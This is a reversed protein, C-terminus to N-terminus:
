NEDSLQKLGGLISKLAEKNLIYYCRLKGKEIYDIIGANKLISLHQSINAQKKKLIQEIKSVCKGEGELLEQIILLRTPHALAKAKDSVKRM